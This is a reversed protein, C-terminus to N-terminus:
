PRRSKRQSISNSNSNPLGPLPPDVDGDEFELMQMLEDASLSDPHPAPQDDPVGPMGDDLLSFDPFDEAASPETPLSCRSRGPPALGGGPGDAPPAAPSPVTVTKDPSVLEDFRRLADPSTRLGRSSARGVTPRLMGARPPDRRVFRCGPTQPAGKSESEETDKKIWHRILSSGNPGFLGPLCVIPLVSEVAPM